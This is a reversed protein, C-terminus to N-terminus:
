IRWDDGEKNEQQRVLKILDISVTQDPRVVYSNPELKTGAGVISGKNSFRTMGAWFYVTAHAWHDDGNRVWIRRIIGRENEEVIRTLNNWHVWYDYWDNETGQLAIRKDTFNDVVFQIMRNRDVIVTGGEDKAGWRVLSETKRDEGYSCLFVRGPYKERLRRSGILDGGQDIIAISTRWRKGLLYDLEDYNSTTSYYFLGQSNGAVLHIQKGTDVGIVIRGEQANVVETCNQMLQQKGLKNDGGVFPLGLVKNWFYEDSKDRRYNLIEDASVWPCILLPIWYGSVERDKYKKVWRGVRREERSLEKKCFKCQFCRREENISYPWDLFQEENCGRCRIFWHKQDSRGWHIDIGCGPASPHSFYHEIKHSSHQQRSAYLEIVKQNSSDIEDYYNADSSIMIAAKQTFTGRYHIFYDGIKKQEITDKDETWKQFVPNQAIIPNVKSGVMTQIDSDTPLTYIANLKTHHVMFLSKIIECTTMGVQAAKMACLKTSFDKYIDFLFLHDRFDIAVGNENKINHEQIFALISVGSLLSM